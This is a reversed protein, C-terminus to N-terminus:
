RSQTQHWRKRLEEEVMGGVLLGIEGVEEENIKGLCSVCLDYRSTEQNFPHITVGVSVSQGKHDKRIEEGCCDCFTKNM